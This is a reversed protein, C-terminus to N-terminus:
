HCIKIDFSAENSGPQVHLFFFISVSCEQVDQTLDHSIKTQGQIFIRLWKRM